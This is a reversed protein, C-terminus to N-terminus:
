NMMITPLDDEFLLERHPDWLQITMEKEKKKIKDKLSIKLTRELTKSFNYRHKADKSHKRIDSSVIDIKHFM